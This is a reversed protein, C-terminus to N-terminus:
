GFLIRYARKNLSVIKLFIYCILFNAVLNLGYIAVVFLNDLAFWELFFGLLLIQVLLHILYIGFTSNSLSTMLKKMKNNLLGEWKINKFLLFVAVATFISTMSFHSYFSEDLYDKGASNIYTMLPVVLFSVFGLIYFIYDTIRKVEYKHLYYGLIFFGIYGTFFPINLFSIYLEKNTSNAYIIQVSRYVFAIFFWAGLWFQLEGKSLNNIIKKIFPLVCYMGLIVYMFWFHYYVKDFLLENIFIKPMALISTIDKYLICHKVVSYVFSWIFFPVAIKFFRKHFFTKLSEEKSNGLILAGSIMFFVLVSWRCLSNIVNAAWWHVSGISILDETIASASHLLIVSLISVVRLVDLYYVRKNNVESKENKNRSFESIQKINVANYM